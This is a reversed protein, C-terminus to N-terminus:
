KKLKKKKNKLFTNDETPGLDLDSVIINTKNDNNTKKLHGSMIPTFVMVITMFVAIKKSKNLVFKKM